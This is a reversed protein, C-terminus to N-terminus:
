HLLILTLESDITQKNKFTGIKFIVCVCVFGRFVQKVKLVM